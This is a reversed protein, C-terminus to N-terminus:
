MKLYQEIRDIDASNFKLEKSEPSLLPIVPITVAVTGCKNLSNKLANMVLTIDYGKDQESWPMLCSIMPNRLYTEVIPANMKIMESIFGVIFQFNKDTIVPTLDQEIYRTLANRIKDITVIM